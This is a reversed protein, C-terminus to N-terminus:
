VREQILTKVRAIADAWDASRKRRVVTVSPYWPTTTESTLPFRLEPRTPPIVYTPVGLTGALHFVSTDVTVVADCSEIVEATAAFDRFRTPEGHQLSVMEVGPMAFAQRFGIPSSRDRDNGHDPSGKWCVGLRFDDQPRGDFVGSETCEDCECGYSRERYHQRDVVPPIPGMGLKYPLSMIPCSYDAEVREGNPVVAVNAFNCYRKVFPVLEPQCQLIFAPGHPLYRLMQIVDGTGQEACVLVRGAARGDWEPPLSRLDTQHLKQTRWAEATHWRAEFLKWGEAWQGRALLIEAKAFLSPGDANPAALAADWAREAGERKGLKYCIDGLITYTLTEGTRDNLRALIRALADKAWELARDWRGLTDYLAALQYRPEANQPEAEAIARLVKGAREYDKQDVMVAALERWVAVDTPRTALEHELLRVAREPERNMRALTAEALVSM